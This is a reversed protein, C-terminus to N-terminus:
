PHELRVGNRYVLVDGLVTVIGVCVIGPVLSSLLATAQRAGTPQDHSLTLSDRIPPAIFQSLHTLARANSDVLHFGDHWHSSSCATLAVVSSISDIGATPLAPLTEPDGKLQLKPLIELDRYFIIGAGMFESTRRASIASLLELPFNM